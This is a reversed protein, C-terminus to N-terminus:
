AEDTDRNRMIREREPETAELVELLSSEESLIGMLTLMQSSLLLDGLRGPREDEAALLSGVAMLSLMLGTCVTALM